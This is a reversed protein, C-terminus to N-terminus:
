AVCPSAELDTSRNEYPIAPEISQIMGFNIWTGLIAAVQQVADDRHSFADCLTEISIGACALYYAELEIKSVSRQYVHFGRRWLCVAAPSEEDPTNWGEWVQLCDTTVAVVHHSPIFELRHDGLEPNALASVAELHDPDPAILAMLRSWELSALEYLLQGQAGSIQERIYQAFHRGVYELAADESPHRNVYDMALLHFREEGIVSLISKFQGKLANEIRILFGNVYSNVRPQLSEHDRFLSKAQPYKIEDHVMRWFSEQSEELLAPPHLPRTHAISIPPETPSLRSPHPSLDKLQRDIARAKDNEALVTELNPVDGDWEMITPVAGLITRTTRFLDWVPEPVCSGHDDFLHTGLDKHGALHHQAVRGKPLRNLFDVPDYGHNIANIYLNNIDILLLCDAREAIESLVDAETLEDHKWTIYSSVNEILIRRGLREQVRQIRESVYSVTSDTYPLPWLDHGRGAPVGGFCLHDSVIAADVQHALAKVDDVYTWDIPATGGISLSVGHLAIPINGERIKELVARPRGGRGLFNETVVEVLGCPLSENLLQDYHPVRLGIGHATPEILTM